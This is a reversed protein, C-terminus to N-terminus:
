PHNSRGRKLRRAAPRGSLHDVMGRNVLEDALARSTGQSSPRGSIAPAAGALAVMQCVPEATSRGPQGPRPAAALREEVRLDAVPVVQVGLWRTRGRRVPDVTVQGQRALQANNLGDAAALIIRSRRARQPPAPHRRTV